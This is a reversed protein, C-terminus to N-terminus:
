TPTHEIKKFQDRPMCLLTATQSICQVSTHYFENMACDEEGIMQNKGIIQLEITEYSNATNKAFYQNVGKKANSPNKYVEAAEIKLKQNPLSMRITQKFEGSKVIYVHSAPEGERYLFAHMQRACPTFAQVLKRIHSPTFDNFVPLMKLEDLMHKERRRQNYNHLGTYNQKDITIVVVETRCFASAQRLKESKAFALQGFYQGACLDFM